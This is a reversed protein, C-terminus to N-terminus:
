SLFVNSLQQKLSSESNKKALDASEQFALSEQIALRVEVDNKM